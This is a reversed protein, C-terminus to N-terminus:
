LQGSPMSRTRLGPDRRLAVLRSNLTTEATARHNSHLSVHREQKFVSLDAIDTVEEAVKFLVLALYRLGEWLEM